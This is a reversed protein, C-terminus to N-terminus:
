CISEEGTVKIDLGKNIRKVLVEAKKVDPRDCIYNSYYRSFFIFQTNKREELVFDTFDEVIDPRKLVVKDVNDFIYTKRETSKFYLEFVKSDLAASRKKLEDYQNAFAELDICIVKKSKGNGDSIVADDLACVLLDHILDGTHGIFLCNWLTRLDMNVCVKKDCKKLLDSLNGEIKWELVDNCCEGQNSNFAKQTSAMDSNNTTLMRYKLRLIEELCECETLEDPTVAVKVDLNSNNLCKVFVYNMAMYPAYIRGSKLKLLKMVMGPSCLSIDYVEDPNEKVSLYTKIEIPASQYDM